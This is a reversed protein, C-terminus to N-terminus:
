GSPEDEARGLEEVHRAAEERVEELRRLRRTAQAVIELEAVEELPRDAEDEGVGHGRARPLRALLGEALHDPPEEQGGEEPVRSGDPSRARDVRGPPALMRPRGGRLAIGRAPSLGAIVVFGVMM